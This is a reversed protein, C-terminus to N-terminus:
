GADLAAIHRAPLVVGNEALLRRLLSPELKRLPVATSVALAAATGAAQGTVMVPPILRLHEVVSADASVCRGAAILGELRRPVMCGYPITIHDVAPLHVATAGIADEFRGKGQMDDAGIVYVGKIRRSDRIGLQSAFALLRVREFGPALKRYHNLSLLLKSRLATEAYSLDGIDLPNLNGAEHNRRSIGAVNIWFVGVESGPILRPSLPFGGLRVVEQELNGAADPEERKFTSFAELDVGCVKVPLGVPLDGTTFDAGASVAMDADGTADIVARALIARRGSKSEIVAGAVEGGEVIAAVAWSHLHLEVGAEACMEDAVVKLLESDIYPRHSSEYYVGDLRNMRELVEFPLGGVWRSGNKHFIGILHLVLGGTALGGLCGYREVLAVRAGQKAAAVAAIFGGPGGGVVLVDVESSVPIRRSPEYITRMM